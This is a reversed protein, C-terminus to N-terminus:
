QHPPHKADYIQNSRELLIVEYWPCIYMNKRMHEQTCTCVVQPMHQQRHIVTAVGITGDHKYMPHSYLLGLNEVSVQPTVIYKCYIKRKKLNEKSIYFFSIFCLQRCSHNIKIKRTIVKTKMSSKDVVQSFFSVVRTKSHFSHTM